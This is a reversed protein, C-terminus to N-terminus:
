FDRGGGPTGLVNVPFPTDTLWSTIGWALLGTICGMRLDNPAVWDYIFAAGPNDGIPISGAARMQVGFRTGPPRTYDCLGPAFFNRVTFNGGFTYGHTYLFVQPGIRRLYLRGRVTAEAPPNTHETIDYWGTDQIVADKGPEGQPGPPGAPGIPGTDGKPGTPGSAGDVGDRGPLGDRGDAGDQGDAGVPAPLRTESGDTLTFVLEDGELSIGAVGTGPVGQPAPIRSETGDTLTFVLEGGETTIAALGVGDAGAEGRTVFEGTVPDPVPLVEALNVPAGAVLEFSFPALGVAGGAHRLRPCARWTWTTPQTSADPVQLSATVQGESDLQATVPAPLTVTQTDRAFPFAPTFVVSGSLPSGDPALFRGWVEEFVAM